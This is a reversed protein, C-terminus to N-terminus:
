NSVPQSHLIVSHPIELSRLRNMFAKQVPGKDAISRALRAHLPSALRPTERIAEKKRLNPPAVNRRGIIYLNWRGAGSECSQNSCVM